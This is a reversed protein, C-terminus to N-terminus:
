FLGIADLNQIQRCFAVSHSICSSHSGSRMGRKVRSRKRQGYRTEKGESLLASGEGWLGSLRALELGHVRLFCRPAPRRGLEDLYSIKHTSTGALEFM